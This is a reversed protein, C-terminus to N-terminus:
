DAFDGTLKAVNELVHRDRVRQFRYDGTPARVLKSSPTVGIYSRLRERSIIVQHGSRYPVQMEGSFGGAASVRGGHM